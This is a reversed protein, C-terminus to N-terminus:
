AAHSDETTNENSGGSATHIAEWSRAGEQSRIKMGPQVPVLCAQRNAVGDIELLCEFCVGMMCYPARPAGSVPTSRFRSVGAALLAAAVSRQGLVALRRGDFEVDIFSETAGSIPRFLPETPM